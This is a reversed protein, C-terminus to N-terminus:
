YNSQNFDWWSKSTHLLPNFLKNGLIQIKIEEM